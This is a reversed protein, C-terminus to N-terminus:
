PKSALVPDPKASAPNGGEDFELRERVGAQRGDSLNSAVTETGHPPSTGARADRTIKALKARDVQTNDAGGITLEASEKIPDAADPNAM